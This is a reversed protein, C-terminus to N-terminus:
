SCLTCNGFYVAVTSYRFMGSWVQMTWYVFFMGPQHKVEDFRSDKGAKHVRQVLYTGLRAAWIGVMGSVLMQLLFM